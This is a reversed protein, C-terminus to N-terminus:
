ISAKERVLKCEKALYNVQILNPKKHEVHFLQHSFESLTVLVTALVYSDYNWGIRVTMELEGKVDSRTSNHVKRYDQLSCPCRM